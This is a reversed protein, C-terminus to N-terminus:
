LKLDNFWVRLTPYSVIPPEEYGRKHSNKQRLIREAPTLNTGKIAEIDPLM